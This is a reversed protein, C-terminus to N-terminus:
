TINKIYNNQEENLLKEFNNIIKQRNNYLFLGIRKDVMNKFEEKREKTEEDTEDYYMNYYKFFIAHITDKLNKDNEIRKQLDELKLDVFDRIHETIEYIINEKVLHWNVGNYIMYQKRNKDNM